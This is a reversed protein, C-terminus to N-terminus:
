ATSAAYWVLQIKMARSGVNAGHMEDKIIHALEERHNLVVRQQYLVHERAVSYIVLPRVTTLVCYAGLQLIVVITSSLM